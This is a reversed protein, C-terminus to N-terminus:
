KPIHSKAYIDDQRFHSSLPGPCSGGGGWEEELRVVQWAKTSVCVEVNPKKIIVSDEKRKGRFPSLDVTEINM